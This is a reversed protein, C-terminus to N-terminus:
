PKPSPPLSTPLRGPVPAQPTPSAPEPAGRRTGFGSDTAYLTNEATMFILQLKTQASKMVVATTSKFNFWAPREDSWTVSSTRSLGFANDDRLYKLLEPSPRLEMFWNWRTVGEADHWEYREAHVIEDDATPSRWFARQFVLVPDMVVRDPPAGIWTVQQEPKPSQNKRPELQRWGLWSLVALLPILILLSQKSPM